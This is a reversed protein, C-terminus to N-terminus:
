ELEDSPDDPPLTSALDSLLLYYDPNAFVLGGKSECHVNGEEDRCFTGILFHHRGLSVLVEDAPLNNPDIKQWNM